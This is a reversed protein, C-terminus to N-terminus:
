VFHAILSDYNMAVYLLIALNAYILVPVLWLLLVLLSGENLYIIFLSMAVGLYLDIGIQRAWIFQNIKPLSKIFSAKTSCYISYALFGAFLLWAIPKGLPYPGESLFLPEPGKNALAIAVFLFYAVWLFNRKLFTMNWGREQRRM